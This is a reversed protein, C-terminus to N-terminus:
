EIDSGELLDDLTKYPVDLSSYLKELIDGKPISKGKVYYSIVQRSIGLEEALWSQNKGLEKLRRKVLDSLEQNEPRKMRQKSHYNQYETLSAFKKGTEPNTRQKSHYNQYETLSAFKKGIEPNTRQRAHYNNYETQSAFPQGTEPNTRQR